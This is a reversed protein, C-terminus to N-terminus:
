SPTATARHGAHLDERLDAPGVAPLDAQGRDARPHDAQHRRRLLRHTAGADFAVLQMLLAFAHALPLFLYVVDDGGGLVGRQEVMDLVGRYNGHTLVCGKPPGTTGSTYIFTFPTTPASPRPARRSSPARRSARGRERLTTWRSPTAGTAPRTSSSSTSAPRAAARPGRRDQRGPDADECIVARAESNGVVWECEEPSNTPYVPVVTAGAASMAFDSTPGSPARTPLPHLRPRGARHGPRDAWPRDGLRDRRGRRLHRRAVDGDVKQRLAVHTATSRPRAVSCTPSRGRVRQRARRPAPRWRRRRPRALVILLRHRPRATLGARATRRAPQRSRLSALFLTKDIRGEFIPVGMEMCKAIVERRELGAERALETPTLHNAM